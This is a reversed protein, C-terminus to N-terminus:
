KVLESVLEAHKSDHVLVYDPAMCTQGANIWKGMAIRRAAEKVSACSPGVVVPAKGGLEMVTPTLHEAAARMVVQGVRPSGTFFIFDWKCALLATTRPVDGDVVRILDSNVVRGFSGLFWKECAVTQESPKLVVTNGAAIAGILPVLGLNMPYNFPAIVLLVGFAERRLQTHGPTLLLHTSKAEPKMWERLNSLM